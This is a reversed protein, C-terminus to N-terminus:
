EEVEFLTLFRGVEMEKIWKRLVKHRDEGKRMVLMGAARSGTHMHELLEAHQCKKFLICETCHNLKRARVCARLECDEKGGGKLCGQCFPVGRISKLGSLFNETDYDKPGWHHVGYSRYVHELSRALERLTGNGIACSGCYIGCRGIQNKVNEFANKKKLVRKKHM